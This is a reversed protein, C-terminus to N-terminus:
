ISWWQENNVKIPKGLDLSEVIALSVDMARFVEASPVEPELRDLISGVFAELMDGKAAGLYPGLVQEPEMDPDRSWFYAAGLHNQTFTGETGYVSLRHHHPTVSAFNASIKAVRGNSFKLAAIVMDDGVFRSSKTSIHNGYAFVETVKEGTLWLLLDIVHIGGGHVVSYDRTESRWGQTLKHLRGYDYDGEAYYIQGLAGAEIRRRLEVFRPNRRLILNSSLQLNPRKRLAEAINGLEPRTLCLPKEVFVHKGQQLALIIQEHHADDYSAISVVDIEPDRLLKEPSDVLAIGPNREGVEHLKARDLDCLAVVRCRSDLQYGRIHQEGVGLGIIGARLM